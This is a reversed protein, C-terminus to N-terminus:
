TCPATVQPGLCCVWPDTGSLLRASQGWRPPRLRPLVNQFRRGSGCPCLDARGLKEFLESGTDWEALAVSYDGNLLIIQSRGRSAIVDLEATQRREQAAGSKM